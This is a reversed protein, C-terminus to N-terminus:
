PVVGRCAWAVAAFSRPGDPANGEYAARLAQELRQKKEDSIGAVYKGLAAEGAAIPAWFDAFNSFEMRVMLETQEIQRLGVRMWTEKLENRRTMPRFYHQGRAIAATPDLVAATDWFMRQSAMGGFTDWVTAAVIGGPRVVRCMERVARETEPIFHLVLLSMARDFGADEFPLACADAREFSIRPDKNKARAADLYIESADIAAIRAVKAAEALAFALSGTGCGVDLIREGDALGAFAIFSEALRRSWRGMFHEYADANRAHFTTSM